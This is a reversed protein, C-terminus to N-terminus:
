LPMVVSNQFLQSAMQWRSSQVRQPVGLQPLPCGMCVMPVPWPAEGARKRLILSPTAKALHLAAGGFRERAANAAGFGASRRARAEGGDFKFGDGFADEFEAFGVFGFNVNVDGGVREGAEGIVDNVLVDGLLGKVDGNAGHHVSAGSAGGRVLGVFFRKAADSGGGSLEGKMLRFNGAQQGHEPRLFNRFDRPKEGRSGFGRRLIAGAGDRANALEGLFFRWVAAPM